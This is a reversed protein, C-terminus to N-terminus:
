QVQLTLNNLYDVDDQSLVYTGSHQVAIAAAKNAVMIARSIDKTYLYEHTLAALFTDGAGVLDSVSVKDTPYRDGKYIAGQEGLTVILNDLKVQLRQYERLNIVRKKSDIFIPCTYTEAIQLIKDFTLFGKDYDSIVIADFTQPPLVDLFPRVKDEIDMRLLHQNYREDIYRTKVIKEVNTKHIVNIGFSKLNELVNASM